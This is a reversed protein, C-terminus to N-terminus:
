EETDIETFVKGIYASLVQFIDAKRKNIEPLKEIYEDPDYHLLAFQHLLISFQLDIDSITPTTLNLFSWSYPPLEELDFQDYIDSNFYRPDVDIRKCIADLNFKTMRNSRIDRGLTDYDVHIRDAIEQQTYGKEKFANRLEKGKIPEKEKPRPM